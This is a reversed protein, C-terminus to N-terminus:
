NKKFTKIYYWTDEYEVNPLNLVSIAKDDIGMSSLDVWYVNSLTYETKSLRSDLRMLRTVSRKKLKRRKDLLKM